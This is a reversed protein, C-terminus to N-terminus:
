EPQPCCDTDQRADKTENNTMPDPSKLEMRGTRIAPKDAVFIALSTLMFGEPRITGCEGALRRKLM